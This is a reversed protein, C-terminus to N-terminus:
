KRQVLFWCDCNRARNCAFLCMQITNTREHVNRQQLM